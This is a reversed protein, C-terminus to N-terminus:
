WWSTYFVQQGSALVERAKNIAEQIDPIDEDLHQGWFFGSASKNLGIGNAKLKDELENLLERSIPLLECNFDGPDREPHLEAWKRAMFDELAPVKRHYHIDVLQEREEEGKGIEREASWDASASMWYQDLGM